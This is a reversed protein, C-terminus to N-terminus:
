GLQAKIHDVTRDFDETRQFDMLETDELAEPAHGPAWYFADGAEYTESGHTTRLLVRGKRIVGWHSTQCMDDKLGKLAPAMDTGKPLRIYAVSMEGGIEAKRVEVGDDTSLAVPTDERKIATM